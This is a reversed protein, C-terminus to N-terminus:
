KGRAKAIVQEYIDIQDWLGNTKAYVKLTSVANELAELLDPSAAILVANAPNNLSLSCIENGADDEVGDWGGKISLAKWPGPTHKAQKKM